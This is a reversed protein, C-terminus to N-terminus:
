FTIISINPNGPHKNIAERIAAQLSQGQMHPDKEEMGCSSCVMMHFCSQRFLGARKYINVKCAKLSGLHEIGDLVGDAHQVAEACCEITLDELRPMAGAEFVLCPVEYTFVLNKLNPFTSGRIVVVDEEPAHDRVRLTLHVLSTLSSLVEVGIRPLSVLQMELSKLNELRVIWDPVMSFPCNLVHLRYLHRPPPTWYALCDGNLHDGSTTLSQLSSLRCLSPLLCDEFANTLGSLHLKLERLNKLNGLEKLIELNTKLDVKTRLNFEDLLGFDTIRLEHLTRLAEMRGIGGFLSLDSPIILHWLMSPLYRVDLWAGNEGGVIELIKLHKLKQLQKLLKECKLGGIRLYRLLFLNCISSLDYQEEKTDYVDLHLVRVLQFRSLSPMCQGPGWFNFSRVQALAISGVVHNCESNRVQLSLRRVEMSCKRTHPDRIIPSEKIVTIFNEETSKLIIFDLMLDHVRCSLVNGCDDFRAIQIMNKNILESFYSEAMEELGVFGEAVWRKVLDDKRIESDEPFIGLYLMCTKLDLSLYSYGLNLVHRMWQFAPNGELQLSLYNQIMEWFDKSNVEKHNALLSAVTLIALPVGQCKKLIEDSVNMLKEPCADESPFIRGHFLRRSDLDNLPKLKYVHGHSCSCAQAVDEIRTTTIVRSGNNNEMLSCKIINWAEMTWIDDIVILYRKNQLVERLKDILQREENLFSPVQGWVGSLIDSLVKILSPNQAVSVFATCDFQSKIKDHVQKALTTKGMGGFGVVSVVHLQPANEEMRLLEILKVKPRDIGVLSSAETYLAQVRPDIAEPGRSSGVHEDLKYRNHRDSAELVQAKLEEIRNAIKYHAKLKKLEGLLGDKADASDLDNMFIDICDEMGYSLERVKDRWDKQQEDLEDFRSLKLLLANMSSMEDKLSIIEKKADKSLRYKKELLAALKSLLSSM